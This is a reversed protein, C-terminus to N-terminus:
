PPRFTSAKRIRWHGALLAATDEVRPQGDRHAIVQQQEPMPV